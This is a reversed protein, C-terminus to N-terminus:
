GGQSQGSLQPNLDQQKLQGNNDFFAYDNKHNFNTFRTIRRKIGTFFRSLETTSFTNFIKFIWRFKSIAFVTRLDKSNPWKIMSSLEKTGKVTKMFPICFIFNFQDAIVTSYVKINGWISSFISSITTFFTLIFKKSFFVRFSNCSNWNFINRLSPLKINVSLYSKLIKWIFTTNARFNLLSKKSMMYISDSVIVRDFVQTNETNATMFM